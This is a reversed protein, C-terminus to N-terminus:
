LAAGAAEASDSLLLNSKISELCIKTIKTLPQSTKSTPSSHLISRLVGLLEQPTMTSGLGARLSVKIKSISGQATYFVLIFVWYEEQATGERGKGQARSRCSAPIVIGARAAPFTDALCALPSAQPSDASCSQLFTTFSIKLFPIKKLRVQSEQQASCYFKM